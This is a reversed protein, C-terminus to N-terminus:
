LAPPSSRMMKLECARIAKGNYFMNGKGSYATAGPQFDGRFSFQWIKSPANTRYGNGTLELVNDRVKGALTEMIAATKRHVAVVNGKVEM